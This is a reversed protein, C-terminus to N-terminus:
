LDIWSFLNHLLIQENTKIIKALRDSLSSMFNHVSQSSIKYFVQGYVFLFMVLNQHRDPTSHRSKIM